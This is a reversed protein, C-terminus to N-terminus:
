NRKREPFCSSIKEQPNSIENLIVNKKLSFFIETTIFEWLTSKFVLINKYKNFSFCRYLEQKISRQKINNVM